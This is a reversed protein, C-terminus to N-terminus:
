PGRCTDCTQPPTAQPSRPANPGLERLRSALSAMVARTVHPVKLLDDFDAGDVVLLTVETTAVVDTEYPLGGIMCLEGFYDGASIEAYTEGEQRLAASGSVIISMAHDCDGVHALTAGVPHEAVRTRRSLEFLTAKALGSFFPMARLVATRQSLDVDRM